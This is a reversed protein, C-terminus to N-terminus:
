CGRHRLGRGPRHNCRSCGSSGAGCGNLGNCVGRGRGTYAVEVERRVGDVVDLHLLYARFIHEDHPQRTDDSHEQASQLRASRSACRDTCCSRIHRECCRRGGSGSRWRGRVEGLIGRRGDTGALDLCRRLNQNMRSGSPHHCCMWIPILPVAM